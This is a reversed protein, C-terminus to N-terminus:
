FHSFHMRAFTLPVGTDDLFRPTQTGEAAVGIKTVPVGASHAAAEFGATESPAVACLLEYDDGGTLVTAYLSQDLAVAARAAASLPVDAVRVATSLGAAGLMKGLDGVLGDSVDMAARAHARLAERLALRPLPTLYRDTLSVAAATPLGALWAAPAARRVLLGLAADGITGSVYVVDGARTTTRRIMRGAAVEGFATVSVTLPGPTKVTDGGILPVAFVRSDDALGGAFVELWETTWDTPLALGLVFGVPIAGKAALDSLNVRLAKRAIAAPPDDPFFHVGAVLMDKTVVLDCGSRPTILAADDMLGLGGPGAMPAFFRAILADESLRM